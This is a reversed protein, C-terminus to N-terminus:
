HLVVLKNKELKLIIHEGWDSNFELTKDGSHCKWHAANMGLGDNYIGKWEYTAKANGNVKFNDIILPVEIGLAKGRCYLIGENPTANVIEWQTPYSSAFLLTAQILSIFLIYKKM